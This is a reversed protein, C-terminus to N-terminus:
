NKTWFSVIKQYIGTTISTACEKDKLFKVLKRNKKEEDHQAMYLEIIEKNHSIYHWREQTNV